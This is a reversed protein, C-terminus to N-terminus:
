LVQPIHTELADTRIHKDKDTHTLIKHTHTRVSNYFPNRCTHKPAHTSHSLLTMYIGDTYSHTSRRARPREEEDFRWESMILSM